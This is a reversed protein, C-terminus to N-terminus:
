KQAEKMLAGLIQARTTEVHADVAYEANFIAHSERTEVVTRGRALTGGLEVDIRAKRFSIAGPNVFAVAACPDYIAMGPRGRSTGISIFGALLDAILAAHVGGASRIPAVDDPYAFVKRCLDLDVMRLPLGHAIVIALAEPDAFANFEASATHNGSTVGGGMWTLDTIRSALDPRALCLAALNTLPGLALIRKPGEQELWACLAAFADSVPLADAEPLTLGATPMGAEGLIREATELKGLVPLARGEHIPFAWGFARAAGAANRKVQDLPTNGFVLSVGDIEEGAHLVVLVAAIDDFGMDTDIWVGM